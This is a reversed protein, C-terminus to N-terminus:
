VHARGIEGLVYGQFHSFHNWWNVSSSWMKITVNFQNLTGTPSVNISCNTGSRNTSASGSTARVKIEEATMSKAEEPDIYTLKIVPTIAMSQGDFDMMEKIYESKPGNYGYTEVYTIGDRVVEKYHPNPNVTRISNSVLKAKKIEVFVGGKGIKDIFLYM